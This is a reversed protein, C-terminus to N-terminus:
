LPVAPTLIGGRPVPVGACDAAQDARVFDLLSTPMGLAGVMRRFQEEEAANAALQLRGVPALAAHLKGTRSLMAVATRTLRALPNDDISFHLHAALAPQSSGVPMGQRAAVSGDTRPADSDICDVLWGRHALAGRQRRRGALGAGVVCVRRGAAQEGHLSTAPRYRAQQRPLGGFSAAIM